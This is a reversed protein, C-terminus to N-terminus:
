RSSALFRGFGAIWQGRVTVTLPWEDVLVKDYFSSANIFRVSEEQMSQVLGGHTIVDPNDTIFILDGPLAQDAEIRKINHKYLMDMTVDGVVSNGDSFIQSDKLASQYAWVILGSCDFKDPGNGAWEYPYDVRTLAADLASRAQGSTVPVQIISRSGVLACSGAAFSVTAVILLIIPRLAKTHCGKATRVM